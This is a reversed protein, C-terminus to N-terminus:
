KELDNFKELAKKYDRFTWAWVGFAENHPFVERAEIVKGKFIKEPKIRILFVEYYKIKKYYLQEYICSKYGRLIQVYEFCNKRLTQPLPKM